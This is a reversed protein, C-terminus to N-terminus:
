HMCYLCVQTKTPHHSGPEEEDKSTGSPEKGKGPKRTKKRGGEESLLTAKPIGSSFLLALIDEKSVCMSLDKGEQAMADLRLCFHRCWALITSLQFADQGRQHRGAAAICIEKSTDPHLVTATVMQAWKPWGFKPIKTLYDGEPHEFYHKCASAIHQGGILVYRHDSPLFIPAQDSSAGDRKRSPSPPGNRCMGGRFWTQAFYTYRQPVRFTCKESARLIERGTWPVPTRIGLAM